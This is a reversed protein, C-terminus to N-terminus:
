YFNSRVLFADSEFIHCIKDWDEPSIGDYPHQRAGGHGGNNKYHSYCRNKYQRFRNGLYMNLGKKINYLEM